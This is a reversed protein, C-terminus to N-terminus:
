PQTLDFLGDFSFTDYANPFTVAAAEGFLANPPAAATNWSFDPFHTDFYEATGIEGSGVLLEFPENIQFQAPAYAESSLAASFDGELGQVVSYKNAWAAIDSLVPQDINFNVTSLDPPIDLTAREIQPVHEPQRTLIPSTNNFWIVVRQFDEPTNKILGHESTPKHPKHAVSPQQMKWWIQPSAGPHYQPAPTQVPEELAQFDSSPNTFPRASGTPEPLATQPASRYVPHVPVNLTSSLALPLPTAFTLPLPLRALAPSDGSPAESTKGKTASAEQMSKVKKKKTQPRYRYQPYALAHAEKEVDALYTFLQKVYDPEANWKDGVWKPCSVLFVALEEDTPRIEKYSVYSRFIIFSNRARSIHGEEVNKSRRVRQAPM